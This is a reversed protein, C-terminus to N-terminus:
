GTDAPLLITNADSWQVVVTEGVACLNDVSAVMRDVVMKSRDLRVQYRVISGVYVVEEVTGRLANREGTAPSERGRYVQIREPRVCVGVKENERLATDPPAFVVQGDIKTEVGSSDSRLVTGEIYNAEGIFEAVFRTKPKEYVETPSGVQVVRGKNMVALRDSMVLAEGQDHTVYMTTIGVRRQIAKIESRMQQRLKLDLNSLPEDFLLIAPQIVLARALAVRQQQGGSLQKPYREELGPLKVTDLAERVNQRITQESYSRIKLGYAINEYVTMHPFLAYNQFVMGTNRLYPPRGSIDEGKVRVEGSTPTVFGAIMRLTTTKGCGSPGILTLFEGEPMTLSVDDVALTSGFKKSLGVLELDVYRKDDSM